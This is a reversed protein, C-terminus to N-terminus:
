VGPSGARCPALPRGEHRGQAGFLAAAAERGAEALAQAFRFPPNVVLLGSAGMGRAPSPGSLLDLHVERGPAALAALAEVMAEHRAEALVPFWILHIGHRWRKFARAVMAPVERYDDKLEYSPDVLVLGRREPPPVLAPVAEFGDRAHIHVNDRNGLARRLAALEAPHREVAILSDTARMMGAALLPSGPYAVPRAAGPPNAARVRELYLRLGDSRADQHWLRGIGGQWEGTKAAQPGALDYRAAGAHSDIVCFPAPKDALHRLALCLAVHKHVDAFGGAHYGHQYSLM